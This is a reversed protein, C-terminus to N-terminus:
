VMNVLYAHSLQLDQAHRQAYLRLAHNPSWGYDHAFDLCLIFNNDMAAVTSFHWDLEGTFEYQLFPCGNELLYQVITVDARVFAAEFVAIDMPLNTDEVLYRVCALNGSQAALKVVESNYPCGHDIAYRLADVHGHLAAESPTSENWPCGQEHLFTLCELSGSKAASLTTTFDCPYELEHLAKLCALNRCETAAFTLSRGDQVQRSSALERMLDVSGIKIAIIVPLDSGENFTDKLFKEFQGKTNLVERFTLEWTAADHKLCYDLLSSPFTEVGWFKITHLIQAVDDVNDVVPSAKFCHQPVNVVSESKDQMTRFFAGEKLYSPIEEFKVSRM